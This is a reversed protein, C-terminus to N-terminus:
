HARNAQVTRLHEKDSMFVEAGAIGV